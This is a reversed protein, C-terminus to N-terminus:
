RLSTTPGVIRAVANADSVPRADDPFMFLKLSIIALLKVVLVVVIARALPTPPRVAAAAFAALSSFIAGL